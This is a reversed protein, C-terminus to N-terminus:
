LIVIEFMIFVQSSLETHLVHYYADQCAICQLQLVMQPKEGGQPYVFKM